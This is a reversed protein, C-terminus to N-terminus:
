DKRWSPIAPRAFSLSKYEQLLWSSNKPKLYQSEDLLNLSVLNGAQLRSSFYSFSKKDEHTADPGVDVIASSGGARIAGLLALAAEACYFKGPTGNSGM